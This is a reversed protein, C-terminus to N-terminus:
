WSVSSTWAVMGTRRLTWNLPLVMRIALSDTQFLSRVPAAVVNPTGATGIATPSTDEMHLTAQDSVDFLPEDGSVSVFDAADILTVTGAPVTPSVIIPYGRLNGSRIEEAFAFFGSADAIMSISLAQAPNMIWVPARLNGNTATILAGVLNKIDGVLANFGGGSTATTGTVGNRLGAPRITNAATTDLLVTDIAVATDERIADRILAEIAPVSHTAIERTFTSIVALKKPTLTQSTFAGQRVPIAAGEQVFSGAITPTASRTPISIVGNRGFNLRLGKAALMPYVSEIPLTEMFDTNVTQILPAAWGSGTTTAPASAAKTLHDFVAKTEDHEGYMRQLVNDPLEKTVHSVLKVAMSRVFLDRPELKQAPVAFTRPADKKVRNDSSRTALAAEARKLSDLRAEKAEVDGTLEDTVAPDANEDALYDNLADRAKTVDDQAAEVRQSLTMNMTSKRPLPPKEAQEGPSGRRVLEIEDASKGFIMSQADNSLNLAKAMQLANPNMPVAVLSCEVLESAKFRMGRGGKIPEAEIPRFGVSVARLVGAEVAARIEDLRESVGAPLLNLKGILKGAAVKVDSWHGVIFRSDHGFLAVPNKKFNSLRWGAAEVIDGARDVTEDSMVYVLPDPGAQEALTKEIVEM